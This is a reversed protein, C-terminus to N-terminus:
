YITKVGTYLGHGYEFHPILVLHQLIDNRSSNDDTTSAEDSRALDLKMLITMAEVIEDIALRRASEIEEFSDDSVSIGTIFSYYSVTVHVSTSLTLM